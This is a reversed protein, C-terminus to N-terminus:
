QHWEKVQSVMEPYVQTFLQWIEGLGNVLTVNNMPKM